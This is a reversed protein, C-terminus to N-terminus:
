GGSCHCPAVKNALAPFSRINKSFSTSFLGFEWQAHLFCALKGSIVHCFVLNERIVFCPALKNSVEHFVLSVQWQGRLLFAM